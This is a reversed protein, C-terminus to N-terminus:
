LSVASRATRISAVEPNPTTPIAISVLRTDSTLPATAQILPVLCQPQITMQAMKNSMGNTKTTADQNFIYAQGIMEV